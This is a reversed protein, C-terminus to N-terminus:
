RWSSVARGTSPHTPLLLSAVITLLSNNDIQDTPLALGDAHRRASIWDSMLDGDAGVRRFRDAPSGASLLARM